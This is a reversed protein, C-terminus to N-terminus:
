KYTFEIQKNIGDIVAVGGSPVLIQPDTHGFDLGFVAPVEPAYENLAKIIAERQNEIYKKRGEHPVHGRHQTKPRGVLVASFGELWGRIGMGSLSRYVNDATPIEESTEIFLVTGALQEDDPLYKNALMHWVVTEWCGGWLRGRAKKGEANHWVWGPNKETPKERKLLSEDSWEFDVDTWQESSKIMGIEEELLAKRFYEVTYGDMRGNQAWQQMVSGGYYSIMGLNWLFFHINTNDSLGLFMKPNEAMIKPDLYDLIKIQDNGGTTAIVAKINKDMFANNIDEARAKPNEALYKGDKGATPFEVPELGFVERMRELGQRYVGPFMAAAGSSPAVIAVRDGPKLRQPIIFERSIDAEKGRMNESRSVV